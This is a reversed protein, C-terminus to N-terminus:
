DGTLTHQTILQEDLESLQQYRWDGSIPHACNVPNARKYTTSRIRQRVSKIIQQDQESCETDVESSSHLIDLLVLDQHAYTYGFQHEDGAAIGLGDTPTAQIISVPVGMLDALAPVEWSKTLSQIPAVDGVDGHLTWFGAALESFNDTSGVFGGEQAAINYLTMMRLRARINGARVLEARTDGGINRDIACAVFNRKLSDYPATLDIEKHEIGLAAVLERGRETEAPNQSIPMLIGLVRYGAEKFLAATLASDIGGSIGIVVTDVSNQKKYETLYNVIGNKTETLDEQFDGRAIARDLSAEFWPSLQFDSNDRTNYKKYLSKLTGTM